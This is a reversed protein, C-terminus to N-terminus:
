VDDVQGSCRPVRRCRAEDPGGLQDAARHPGSDAVQSGLRVGQRRQPRRDLPAGPPLHRPRGPGGRREQRHRPARRVAPRGAHPDEDPQRPRPRGQAPRRPQPRQPGPPVHNPATAPVAEPTPWGTNILNIINCADFRSYTEYSSSQFWQMGCFRVKRVQVFSTEVIRNMFVVREM